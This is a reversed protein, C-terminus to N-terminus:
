FNSWREIKGVFTQLFETWFYNQICVKRCFSDKQHFIKLNWEAIYIRNMLTKQLHCFENQTWFCLQFPTKFIRGGSFQARCIDWLNASVYHKVINQFTECHNVFYSSKTERYGSLWLDLWKVNVKVSFTVREQPQGLSRQKWVWWWRFWWCYWSQLYDYDKIDLNQFSFFQSHCVQWVGKNTAAFLPSCKKKLLITMLIAYKMM